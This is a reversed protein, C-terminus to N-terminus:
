DAAMGSGPEKWGARGSFNGDRYRLQNVRATVEADLQARYVVAMKLTPMGGAGAPFVVESAGIQLPLRRGNVELVLGHQLDEARRAVYAPLSPHGETPVLHTEQLEQFTPIEAMDIVYHLDIVDRAIHMATYHSISFNGLPHAALYSPYVLWGLAMLMVLFRRVWREVNPM